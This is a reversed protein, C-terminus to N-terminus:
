FLTGPEQHLPICRPCLHNVVGQRPRRAAAWGRRRALSAAGERTRDTFTLRRKCRDCQVDFEEACLALGYWVVRKRFV